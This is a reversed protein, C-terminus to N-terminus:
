DEDPLGFHGVLSKASYDETETANSSHEPTSHELYLSLHGVLLELSDFNYGAHKAWLCLEHWGSPPHLKTQLKIRQRLGSLAPLRPQLLHDKFIADKELLHSDISCIRAIVTLSSICESNWIFTWPQELSSLSCRPRQGFHMLKIQSSLQFPM